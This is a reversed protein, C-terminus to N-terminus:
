PVLIRQTANINDAKIRAVYLGPNRIGSLRYEFATPSSGSFVVKGDMSIIELTHAGPYSIRLSVAKGSRIVEGIHTKLSERKDAVGVPDCSKNDQYVAPQDKLGAVTAGDYGPKTADGCGELIMINKFAVDMIAQGGHIQLGIKGPNKIFTNTSYNWPGKAGGSLDAAATAGVAQHGNMNVYVYPSKVTLVVEQYQDVPRAAKVRFNDTTETVWGPSPHSYLSGFQRLGGGEFKAEVQVGQVLEAATTQTSRFFFGSCGAKLRYSYKITFQDFDAKNTFVMTYPTNSTSKGVIASDEIKWYSKEGAIYWEPEFTKGNFLPKWNTKALAIATVALPILYLKKMPNM